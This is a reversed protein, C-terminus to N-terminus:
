VAVSIAINEKVKSMQSLFGYTDYIDSTLWYLSGQQSKQM